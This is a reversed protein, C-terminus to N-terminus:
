ALLEYKKIRGNISSGHFRNATIASEGSNQREKEKQIKKEGEKAVVNGRKRSIM